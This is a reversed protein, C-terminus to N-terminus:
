HRMYRSLNLLFGVTAMMFVLSTGGYSIFPLPIGTVPFAGVTVAINIIAQIGIVATLGFATLSLFKDDLHAAIYFGRWIFLAFLLIVFSAGVFGMEEGIVSFIFDTHHEPLHMLKQRSAGLGVGFLWGSGLAYLSQVAQFGTDLPDSFPDMFAVIRRIRYPKVAIMAAVGAIGLGMTAGLYKWPVEAVIMMCVLAGAITIATGLDEFVVLVPIIALMIMTYLFGKFTQLNKKGLSTLWMAFFVIVVPKAVEAPSFRFGQIGLWRKAGGAEIGIVPVLLLMVICALLAPVALGKVWSVELHMMVFMLFFGIMMYFFQRKFYFLADGYNLLADYSSASLVMILGIALLVLTIFFLLIDAPGESKEPRKREM